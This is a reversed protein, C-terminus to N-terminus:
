VTQLMYVKIHSQCNAKLIVKIKLQQVRRCNKDSPLQKDRKIADRNSVISNTNWVILSRDCSGLMLQLFCCNRKDPVLSRSILCSGDTILTSLLFILGNSQGTPQNTIHIVSFVNIFIFIIIVNTCILKRRWGVEGWVLQCMWTGFCVRTINTLFAKPPFVRKFSVFKCVQTGCPGFQVRTIHALRPKSLLIMNFYVFTNVRALSRKHTVNTCVWKLWWGYKGFVLPYM